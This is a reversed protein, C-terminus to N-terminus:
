ELGMGRLVTGMFLDADFLHAVGATALAPGFPIRTLRGGLRLAIMALGQLLGLLCGLILISLTPELGLFAGLMAMLKVDGLGLGMRGTRWEYLAAVGWLMGGVVVAGIAADVLGPTWPLLLACLLGIVVGPLTIANPIIQHDLDIFTIAVLAAALPWYIVLVIPLAEWRLLLAVFLLATLTEVLPYRPSIRAKCSACRGRLFLYSLIPVNAWAVVPAGCTPCSSRPRVVSKERPLRYIVVNLFSGIAAGLTFASIIWLTRPIEDLGVAGM